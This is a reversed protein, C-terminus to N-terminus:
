EFDYRVEYRRKKNKDRLDKQLLRDEDEVYMNIPNYM